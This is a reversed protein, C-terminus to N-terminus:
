PTRDKTPELLEGALKAVIANGTMLVPITMLDDDRDPDKPRWCVEYFWKDGSGPSTGRETSLRSRNRGLM